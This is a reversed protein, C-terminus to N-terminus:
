VSLRGEVTDRLIVYRFICSQSLWYVCKEPKGKISPKKVKPQSESLCSNVIELLSSMSLAMDKAFYYLIKPLYIRTEKNVYVTSQIFEQKALRLDQFVNKANYIRVAPDSFAGLSLAFHVLPEPYEIAYIHKNHETKLKRGPSLLSQLWSARFHSKIGLISSQITYANISHGGINYTAKLISNSKTNNHTGYALYAHMVLANHINIWFVLKQERTMKGPDVKELKKVLTRFKKLMMEAYNFSDDDVNIKLIEVTEAYPGGEEKINNHKGDWTADENCSPSSSDSRNHTCTTGSSSMSSASSVSPGSQSQNQDGLKCYISCVCRMMDESLRDPRDLHASDTYSTGLHDGLSCRSTKREKRSSSNSIASKIQDSSLQGHQGSLLADSNVKKLLSQDAAPQLQSEIKQESASRKTHLSRARQQFATRYLSLIHRELHLIETELSTIEKVLEMSSKLNPTGNSAISSLSSSRPTMESESWVSSQDPLIKRLKVDHIFNYSARPAAVDLASGDDKSIKGNNWSCGHFSSHRASLPSTSDCNVRLM